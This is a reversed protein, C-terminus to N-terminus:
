DLLHMTKISSTGPTTLLYFYIGPGPLQRRTITVKSSSRIRDSLDLVMRGLADYVKLAATPLSVEGSRVITTMDRFPNPYNQRITLTSSSEAVRVVAAPSYRAAGDNDIQRLRYSLIGPAVDRDIFAYRHFSPSSGAGPVFGIARWVRNPNLPASSAVEREDDSRQIEFGANNTERVTSWDLRVADAELRATFSLLEVPVSFGTRQVGSETGAILYGSSDIALSRISRYIIGSSFDEWHDGADTSQFLGDSTGVFLRGGAQLVISYIDHAGLGSGADTWAGGSDTSRFLKSGSAAYVTGSSQDVGICSINLGGLGNNIQQWTGGNDTSRFMGNHASGAYITGSARHAGLAFFTSDTLGNTSERWSNGGDTSRYLYLEQTGVFLEGSGNAVITTLNYNPLNGALASWAAGFDTARHLSYYSLAFIDGNPTQILSRLSPDPWLMPDHTWSSAQDPSRFLGSGIEGALLLGNSLCLLSRVHTNRYGDNTEIWHEGDDTTRYIGADTAVMLSGQPAFMLASAALNLLGDSKNQWTAGGDTSRYVGEMGSALFYHGNVASRAICSIQTISAFPNWSRGDDTSRYVQDSALFFDGTAPDAYVAAIAFGVLGSDSATWSAGDDTSRYMGSAGSGALCTGNNKVALARVTEGALAVRSFGAGHSLSRYIGDAAGALIAGGQTEAVAYTIGALSDAHTWVDGEDTSRFVGDFTANYLRGNRDVALAFTGTNWCNNEVSSWTAGNDTSRFVSNPYAGAFLHGTAPDAALAAARGGYPGNSPQWNQAPLRTAILFLAIWVAIARRLFIWVM